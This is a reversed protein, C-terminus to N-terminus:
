RKEEKWRQLIGDLRALSRTNGEVYGHNFFLRTLMRERATMTERVSPALQQCIEDYLDGICPKGDVSTM